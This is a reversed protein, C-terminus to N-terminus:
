SKILPLVSEHGTGQVCFIWCRKCRAQTGILGNDDTGNYLGSAKAEPQISCSSEPTRGSLTARNARVTRIEKRWHTRVQRSRMHLVDRLRIIRGGSKEEKKRKLM